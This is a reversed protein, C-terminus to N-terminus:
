IWNNGLVTTAVNPNTAEEALDKVSPAAIHVTGGIIHGGEIIPDVVAIRNRRMLYTFGSLVAVALATTMTNGNLAHMLKNREKNSLTKRHHKLVMKANIMDFNM